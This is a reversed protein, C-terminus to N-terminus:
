RQSVLSVNLARQIFHYLIKFTIVASKIIVSFIGLLHILHYM